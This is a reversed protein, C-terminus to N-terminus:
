PLAALFAWTGSGQDVPSGTHNRLRITLQNDGAWGMWTLGADIDSPPTLTVAMGSRLGELSPYSASTLTTDLTSSASVSGPNWTFSDLVYRGMFDRLVRNHEKQTMDDKISGVRSM